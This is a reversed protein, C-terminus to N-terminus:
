KSSHKVEDTESHVFHIIQALTKNDFHMSYCNPKSAEILLSPIHLSNDPGNALKVRDPSLLLCERVLLSKTEIVQTPKSSRTIQIDQRARRYVQLKNDTQLDIQNEDM